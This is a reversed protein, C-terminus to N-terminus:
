KINHIKKHCDRCLVMVDNPTYEWAKRGTIYQLHHIQINTTAGCMECRKGRQSFILKRFDKWQKTELQSRYSLSKPIKVFKHVHINKLQHSEKFQQATYPILTLYDIGYLSAVFRKPALIANGSKGRSLYLGYKKTEAKLRIYNDNELLDIVSQIQGKNNPIVLYSDNDLLFKYVRSYWQLGSEKKM